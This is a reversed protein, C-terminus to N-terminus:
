PRGVRPLASATAASVPTTCVRALRTRSALSLSSVSAVAARVIGPGAASSGLETTCRSLPTSIECAHCAAQASRSLAM